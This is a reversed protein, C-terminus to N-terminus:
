WHCASSPSIHPLLSLILPPPPLNFPLSLSKPDGCRPRQKKPPCLFNRGGKSQAQNQAQRRVPQKGRQEELHSASDRTLKGGAWCRQVRLPWCPLRRERPDLQAASHLCCSSSTTRQLESQSGEDTASPVLLKGKNIGATVANNTMQSHHSTIASTEVKLM